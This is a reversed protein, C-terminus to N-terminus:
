YPQGHADTYVTRVDLEHSKYESDNPHFWHDTGRLRYHRVERVEREDLITGEPHNGIYPLYKEISNRWSITQTNFLNAPRLWKSGDKTIVTFQKM